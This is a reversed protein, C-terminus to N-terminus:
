RGDLLLGQVSRGFRGREDYLAAEAVGVGHNGAWTVADLGVWEGEPLRHVYLTLDPNIFLYDDWSAAASIGNGFDAAAAARMLPTIPEGAVVPVNLRFWVAAGGVQGIAGRV